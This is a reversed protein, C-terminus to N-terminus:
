QAMYQAKIDAYSPLKRHHWKHVILGQQMLMPGPNSRLITKLMIDDGTFFEVGDLGLAQRFSEIRAADTYATLVTVSQGAAKAELLAPLVRKRWKNLYSEDWAYTKVEEERDKVEVLRYNARPGNATVVTDTVFISDKVMRVAASETGYLKYAIVLFSYGPKSLVAETVDNGGADYVEFDSIKTTPIAPPEKIQELDWESEPYQAYVQLYQDIPLEVVKGDKKHTMRYALPKAESAASAEDAKRQAVDVGIKFPRFDIHPEDWVYNSFCYVLTAALSVGLIANRLGASFLQHKQRYAWVFIIGPILLFVDKLFSTFPKLKIFDGFCGCDTVKMNTEVYPGWQGFQFFNVGKPVYGTLYTFGTLFTFFVVLLLFAWATFRRYAGIILMVGLVIEFVIMGVAFHVAYREALWPFLPAIFSLWAGSFTSEFEAFYQEMKYATGMPDIAKVWGSIIFLVGAFNQLFSLPLNTIRQTRWRVLGTIALAIAAVILILKGLTM